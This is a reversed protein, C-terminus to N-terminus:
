CSTSMPHCILTSMDFVMGFGRPDAKGEPQNHLDRMSQLARMSRTHEEEGCGAPHSLTSEPPRPTTLFKSVRVCGIAVYMVM